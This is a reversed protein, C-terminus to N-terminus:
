PRRGEPVLLPRDSFNIRSKQQGSEAMPAVKPMIDEGLGLSRWTAIFTGDNTFKGVRDNGYDVLQLPFTPGFPRHETVTLNAGVEGPSALAVIVILPLALLLGCGDSYGARFSPQPSSTRGIRLQRPLSCNGRAIRAPILVIM